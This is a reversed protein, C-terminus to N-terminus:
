TEQFSDLIEYSNAKDDYYYMNNSDSGGVAMLVGGRTALTAHNDPLTATLEWNCNSSLITELTNTM